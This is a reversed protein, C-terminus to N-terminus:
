KIIENLRFTAIKKVQDKAEKFEIDINNSIRKKFNDLIEKRNKGSLSSGSLKTFSFPFSKKILNVLSSFIEIWM